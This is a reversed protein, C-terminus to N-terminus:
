FRNDGPRSFDKSFFHLRLLKEFTRSMNYEYTLKHLKILIIFM